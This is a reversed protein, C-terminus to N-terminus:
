GRQARNEQRTQLPSAPCLHGTSGAGPIILPPHSAAWPPNWGTPNGPPGSLIWSNRAGRFFPTMKVELTLRIAQKLTEGPGMRQSKLNWQSRITRPTTTGQVPLDDAKTPTAGKLRSLPVRLPLRAIQPSRARTRASKYMPINTPLRWLGTVLPKWWRSKAIPLGFFSAMVAQMRLSSVMRFAISLCPPGQFGLCCMGAQFKGFGEEVPERVVAVQDIIATLAVVEPFLPM